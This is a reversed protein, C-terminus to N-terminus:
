PGRPRGGKQIMVDVGHQGHVIEGAQELRPRDDPDPRRLLAVGVAHAVEELGGPQRQPLLRGLRQHGLVAVHHAGRGNGGAVPDAVEVPDRNALVDPPQM